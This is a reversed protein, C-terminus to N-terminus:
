TLGTINGYCFSKHIDLDKQTTYIKDCGSCIFVDMAIYGSPSPGKTTDHEVRGAQYLDWEPNKVGSHRPQKSSSALKSSLSASNRKEILKISPSQQRSKASDKRPKSPPRPQITFSPSANKGDMYCGLGSTRFSLFLHYSIMRYVRHLVRNRYDQLYVKTSSPVKHDGYHLRTKLRKVRNM